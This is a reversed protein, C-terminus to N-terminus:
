WDGIVLELDDYSYKVLCRKSLPSTADLPYIKEILTASVDAACWYDIIYKLLAM